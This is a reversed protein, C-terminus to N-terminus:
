SLEKRLKVVFSAALHLQLPMGLPGEVVCAFAASARNSAAAKGQV